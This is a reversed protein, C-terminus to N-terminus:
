YNLQQGKILKRFIATNASTQFPYTSASAAGFGRPDRTFKDLTEGAEGFFYFNDNDFMRYYNQSSVNNYSISRTLAAKNFKFRITAKCPVANVDQTSHLNWTIPISINYNDISSGSLGGKFGGSYTDTKWYQNSQGALTTFIDDAMKIMRTGLTYYPDSSASVKDATVFLGNDKSPQISFYPASAKLGQQNTNWDSTYELNGLLLGLTDSPHSTKTIQLGFANENNIKIYEGEKKTLRALKIPYYTPSTESQTVDTVLRATPITTNINAYGEEGFGESQTPISSELSITSVFGVFVKAIDNVNTAWGNLNNNMIFSPYAEGTNNWIQTGGCNLYGMDYAAFGIGAPGSGLTYRTGNNDLGPSFMMSFPSPIKIGSLPTQEFSVGTNEGKGNIKVFAGGALAISNFYGYDKEPVLKIDQTKFSSGDYVKVSDWFNLYQGVGFSSLKNLFELYQANSRIDLVDEFFTKINGEITTPNSSLIDKHDNIYKSSLLKYLVIIDHLYVDLEIEKYYKVSNDTQKIGVVVATNPKSVIKNTEPTAYIFNKVKYGNNVAKRFNQHNGTVDPLFGLQASNNSTITTDAHLQTNRYDIDCDSLSFKDFFDFFGGNRLMMNRGRDTLTLQLTTTTASNIYGM